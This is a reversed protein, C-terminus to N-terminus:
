QHIQAKLVSRFPMTSSGRDPLSERSWTSIWIREDSFSLEHCETRVRPWSSHMGGLVTCRCKRPDKHKESCRQRQTGCRNVSSNLCFRTSNELVRNSSRMCWSIVFKERMMVLSSDHHNKRSYKWSRMHLIDSSFTVSITQCVIPDSLCMKVTRQTIVSEKDNFLERFIRRKIWLVEAIRYNEVRAACQWQLATLSVLRFIVLYSM